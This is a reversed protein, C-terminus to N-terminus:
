GKTTEKRKKQPTVAEGRGGSPARFSRSLTKLTPLTATPNQNFGKFVLGCAACKISKFVLIDFWLKAAFFVGWFFLFCCFGQIVSNNETKKQVM